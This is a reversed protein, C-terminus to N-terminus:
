ETEKSQETGGTRADAVFERVDPQPPARRFGGSGLFISDGDLSSQREAAFADLYFAAACRGSGFVSANSPLFAFDPACAENADNTLCVMRTESDRAAIM